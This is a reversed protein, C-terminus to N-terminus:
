IGSLVRLQLFRLWINTWEFIRNLNKYHYLASVAQTGKKWNLGQKKHGQVIGKHSFSYSIPCDELLSSRRLAQYLWFYYDEFFYPKLIPKIPHSINQKQHFNNQLVKIFLVINCFKRLERQIFSLVLALHIFTFLLHFPLM